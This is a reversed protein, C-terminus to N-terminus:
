LVFSFEIVCMRYEHKTSEKRALVAFVDDECENLRPSCAVSEYIDLMPGFM